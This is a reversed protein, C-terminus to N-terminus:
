TPPRWRPDRGIFAVLRDTDDADAPVDVAPGYQGSARLVEEMPQMGALLARCYGPDLRDDQGTARALDWTHMFVDATYFNDIVQTLPQTPIHEHSFPKAALPGDLLDQVAATHHRWAAVPDDAVPPGAALTVGGSALLGPLWTVLHDVVDRAVWGPVPAPAHWDTTGQVRETFTAAVVRHHEAPEM